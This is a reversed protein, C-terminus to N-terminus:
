CFLCPLISSSSSSKPAATPKHQPVASPRREPATSPKREPVAPADALRQGEFAAPQCSRHAAILAACLRAAAEMNTLPGVVLRLEAARTRSNERVAVVPYLGEFLAPNSAKTSAWVVRLTGFNAAGGVDIGLEGKPSEEEASPNRAATRPEAAGAPEAGPNRAAAQPEAAGAPQRAASPAAAEGAPASTGAPPSAGGPKEPPRKTSGTMDEINRELRDLRAALRERETALTRVTEALRRQGADLEAVRTTEALKQATARRSSADSYSAIVAVLLALSASGGWVALRRLSRMDFTREPTEQIWERAPAAM